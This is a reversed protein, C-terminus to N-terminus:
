LGWRSLRADAWAKWGGQVRGGAECHGAGRVVTLDPHHRAIMQVGDLPTIHDTDGALLAIPTRLGASAILPSVRDPDFRATRAARFIAIAEAPKALSEIWGLTGKLHNSASDRLDKYPSELLAGALPGGSKELDALALLGVGAGMSTGVILIRRRPIGQSELFGEVRVVDQREWAGLTSPIEPHRDRGRFTFVVADWDPLDRARSASGWADDGFGHLIIAVGKSHLRHLWWVELPAAEGGPIEHRSWRSGDEAITGRIREREADARQPMPGKLLHDPLAFGAGVTLGAWLLLLSLFFRLALRM